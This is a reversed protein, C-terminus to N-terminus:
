ILVREASDVHWFIHVREMIDTVCIFQFAKWCYHSGSCCLAGRLASLYGLEGHLEEVMQLRIDTTQLSPQQLQSCLHLSCQFTNRIICVHWGFLYQISELDVIPLSNKKLHFVKTHAGKTCFRSKKTKEKHAFKYQPSKASAKFVAGCYKKSRSWQM